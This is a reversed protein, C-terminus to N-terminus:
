DSLESVKRLLVSRDNEIEGRIVMTLLRDLIRGIERGREIGANQLDKGNVALNKRRFCRGERILRDMMEIACEAQCKEENELKDSLRGSRSGGQELGLFGLLRFAERLLDPDYDRLLFLMEEETRPLKKKTLRFIERAQVSTRKDCKFSELANELNEGYAAALKGPLTQVASLATMEGENLKTGSAQEFIRRMRRLVPGANKGMLLKATEKWIREAAVDRVALATRLCATETQEEISFGLVSAFRLARLVRLGDERFRMDPDGVARIIRRQLDWRGGFPDVLGDGPSYAMGNITFDRRALDERIDPTFTVSEPHRHDRYEGDIRFTTIEVPEDAMMVTVTGHRIGTDITRCEPFCAKTEEPLASTCVDWDEPMRGLLSDRVCGGVVYASYGRSQLRKLIRNVQPPILIVRGM